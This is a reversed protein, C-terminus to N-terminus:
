MFFDFRQTACSSCKECVFHLFSFTFRLEREDTGEVVMEFAVCFTAVFRIMKYCKEGFLPFHFSFRLEWQDTGEVIM